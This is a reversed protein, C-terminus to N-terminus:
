LNTNICEEPTKDGRVESFRAFTLANTDDGQSQYTRDTYIVRWVQPWREPHALEKKQADSLGSSVNSIYVLKGSTNRQYLAVSKIGLDNREKTSREGLEGPLSWLMTNDPDWYAVFDDEFEPKLKACVTGPRDPKGKYNFGKDGYIGEPDVVVFGEWGKAQAFAKAQDPHPFQDSTFFQVPEIVGNGFEHLLAYREAVPANSVLNEGDWFAVDWCCFSVFGKASQDNLSQDTLSKTVSQVHKFDDVGGTTVLEGLLISNPPMIESAVTIIYPFRDDWTKRGQEDDHSRLMRRSYLKPAAKGRALVFMLGNRKRSYWVKGAIAKKTIGAGMSNDPKYFSLSLPLSDFDIEMKQIADMFTGNIGTVERYGEWHKKRCMDQARDIAYAEPTVENSKGINVGQKQEVAEQLAGGQQGWRTFIRSGECRIGWIRPASTRSNAQLFWREEGAWTANRDEFNM